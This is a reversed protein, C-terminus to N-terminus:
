IKISQTGDSAMVVFKDDPRITHVTIVPKSSIYPFKFEKLKAPRMSSEKM